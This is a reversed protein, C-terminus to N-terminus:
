DSERAARLADTFDEVQVASAIRWRRSIPSADNWVSSLSKTSRIGQDLPDPPTSADVDLLADAVHLIFSSLVAHARLQRQHWVRQGKADRPLGELARLTNDILWGLRTPIGARALDGQVMPLAVENVSWVLVPALATLLRESNPNLLVAEVASSPSEYRHALPADPDHRLHRAGYRALANQLDSHGDDAAHGFADIDVNFLRLIQLLQEASFSGAGREIESLRNQSLGLRHALEAQSWRRNTRLQRVKAAIRQRTKELYVDSDKESM